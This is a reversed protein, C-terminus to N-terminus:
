VGYEYSLFISQSSFCRLCFSFISLLHLTLLSIYSMHTVQEYFYRHLRWNVVCGTLCNFCSVQGMSVRHRLETRKGAADRWQRVVTEARETELQLRHRNELGGARRRERYTNPIRQPGITPVRSGSGEVKSTSRGSNLKRLLM